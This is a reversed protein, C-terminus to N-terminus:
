YFIDPDALVLYKGTAALAGQRIAEPYFLNQGFQLLKCQNSNLNLQIEQTDINNAVVIIELPEEMSERLTKLSTLLMKKNRHFHIIVSIDKM